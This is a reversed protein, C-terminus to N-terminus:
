GRWSATLLMQPQTGFFTQGDGLTGLTAELSTVVNIGITPPAVYNASSNLFLEFLSSAGGFVFTNSSQLGSAATTSNWGIGTFIGANLTTSIANVVTQRQTFSTTVMEEPLGAFVTVNNAINGNSPRVTASAYTWNATPDGAQLIIKQRNYANWVGFKRSQGYSRYASVQGATADISLSGVYTCQNAPITYSSLGNYGIIPIANVWIGQLRTLQASGAGTGRNGAGATPSTWTPGTVLTPVGNNSFVCSDQIAASASGATTLTATLESFTVSKFTSGNWIPITNGVFPSYYVTATGVVDGTQVVDGTAQGVLNLYGQPPTLSASSGGGSSTSAAPNVLHFEINTADYSVIPMNSADIESGSLAAPGSATDVVIAIPAGGSVSITAPGANSAIARFQISAGDQLAFSTDTITIANGTGGATGAFYIGQPSTSATLQSYVTNGLSDQVVMLYIGAGYIVACGNQDLPVPNQNLTVEGADQWTQKFTQTNPIYFGVSGGALSSNISTSSVPVSFGTGTGGINVAAASLVDGTVYQIGPNLVTVTTVIGGSVTINATAGSGSGGTLPIGGYSGNTYLSGGTITGLVGVMGNIGAQAQFCTEGPPLITAQAFVQGCSLALAFLAAFISKFKM